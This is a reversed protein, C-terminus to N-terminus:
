SEDPLLILFDLAFYELPYDERRRQKQFDGATIRGNPKGFTQEIRQIASKNTSVVEESHPNCLDEGIMEAYKGNFRKGKTNLPCEACSMDPGTLLNVRTNPKASLLLRDAQKVITKTHESDYGVCGGRGYMNMDNEAHHGSIEIKRM